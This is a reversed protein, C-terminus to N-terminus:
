RPRALRRDEHDRRRLACCTSSRPPSPMGAVATVGHLKGLAIRTGDARVAEPALAENSPLGAWASSSISRARGPDRLPGAPLLWGNGTGRDDFVCIEIDRALAYHQLGDDSVIVQTQPHARLLARAADVRRARRVGACWM